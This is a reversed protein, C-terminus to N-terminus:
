QRRWILPINYGGPLTLMGDNMQFGGPANIAAEQLNLGRGTTPASPTTSAIFAIGAGPAASQANSPLQANFGFPTNITVERGGWIAATEAITLPQMLSQILSSNVDRNM